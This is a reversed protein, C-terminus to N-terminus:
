QFTLLHLSYNNNKHAHTTKCTSASPLSGSAISQSMPTGMRSLSDHNAENLRISSQRQPIKVIGGPIVQVANHLKNVDLASAKHVLPEKHTM